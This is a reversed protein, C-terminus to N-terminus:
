VGTAACFSKWFSDVISRWMRTRSVSYLLRYTISVIFTVPSLSEGHSDNVTDSAANKSSSSSDPSSFGSSQRVTSLSIHLYMFTVATAHFSSTQSRSQSWSLLDFPDYRLNMFYPSSGSVLSGSMGPVSTVSAAALYVTSLFLKADDPEVSVIVGTYLFYVTVSLNLATSETRGDINSFLSRLFMFPYGHLPM